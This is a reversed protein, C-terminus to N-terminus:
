TERSEDSEQGKQVGTKVGKYGELLKGQDISLYVLVKM